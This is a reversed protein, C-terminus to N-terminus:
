VSKVIHKKTRNLAVGIGAALFLSVGGDFPIDNTGGEGGPLGGEGDGPGLEGVEVSGATGNTTGSNYNPSSPFPNTAIGGSEQAHVKTCMMGLVIAVAVTPKLKSYISQLQVALNEQKISFRPKHFNEFNTLNNIALSFFNM